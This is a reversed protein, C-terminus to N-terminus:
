EVGNNGGRVGVSISKSLMAQLVLLSLLCVAQEVFADLHGLRQKMM